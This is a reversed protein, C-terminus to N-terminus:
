NSSVPAPKTVGRCDACEGFIDFRHSYVQFGDPVPFPLEMPCSEIPITRGCQVCIFHHHHPDRCRIRFRSSGDQFMSEEVIREQRLVKLNRYITDYSIHPHEEQLRDMLEKASMYRNEALLIGLISRRQGTLKLGQGKLQNLYADVDM